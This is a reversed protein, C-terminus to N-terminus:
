WTKGISIVEHASDSSYLVTSIYSSAADLAPNGGPYEPTFANDIAIAFPAPGWANSQIDPTFSVSHHAKGYEWNTKTTSGYQVASFMCLQSTPLSKDLEIDLYLIVMGNGFNKAPYDTTKNAISITGFVYAAFDADNLTHLGGYEGEKFESGTKIPIDGTGGVKGWANQLQSTESGKIWNGMKVSVQIQYGNSDILIATLSNNPSIAAEQKEREEREKAQQEALRAQEEPDVVFLVLEGKALPVSLEARITCSGVGVATVKGSEVIAVDTDSSFWQLQTSDFDASDVSLFTDYQETEGINLASSGEITLTKPSAQEKPGPKDGSNVSTNESVCGFMSAILIAAFVASLTM